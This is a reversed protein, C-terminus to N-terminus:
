RDDQAHEREWEASEAQWIEEAARLVAPLIVDLRPFSRSWRRLWADREEESMVEWVNWTAMIGGDAVNVTHALTVRLRSSDDAEDGLASM